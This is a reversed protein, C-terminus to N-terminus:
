HLAYSDCVFRTDYMDVPGLCPGDPTVCFPMMESSFADHKYKVLYNKYAASAVLIQEKFLVFSTDGWGERM